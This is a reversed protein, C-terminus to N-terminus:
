KCNYKHDIWHKRQCEKGCYKTKGCRMCSKLKASCSGCYACSELGQGGPKGPVLDDSTTSSHHQSQAPLSGAKSMAKCDSKHKRWHNQQCETNCYQAVGCQKCKKLTDSSSNCFSCKAKVEDIPKSSITAESTTLTKTNVKIAQDSEGAPKSRAAVKCDKSHMPWHKTQCDKSCYQVKKCNCCKKTVPYYKNCYECKTDTSPPAHFAESIDSGIHNIRDMGCQDPDGYLLYIVARTFHHDIKYQQLEEFKNPKCATRCTGNTRNAFYTLTKQLVEIEAEDVFIKRTRVHNLSLLITQISSLDVFYFALDVAPARHQYDFLCKNVVAMGRLDKPPIVFTFNTEEKCQFFFMLTEKVNLLPPMLERNRDCSDQIKRDEKSMQMGSHCMMIQDKRHQPPLSLQHDPLSISIPKEETFEYAQRPSVIKILGQAKSFKISIGDYDIPYKFNLLYSFKGCVLKIADSSVKSTSLKHQAYARLAADSLSMESQMREGDGVHLTLKGFSNDESSSQHLPTTLSFSYQVFNIQKDQLSTTPLLSILMNKVPVMDKGPIMFSLGITVKYDNEVFKMPAFFKLKLTGDKVTGDFCDFIHVDKGSIAEKCLYPADSSSYQHIFAFFRPTSYRIPLPIEAGFTGLYDEISSCNCLPCNGEDVVLHMHLKHLLLQTQLSNLFPKMKHYLASSLPEWFHYDGVDANVSSAFTQLILVATEICLNNLIDTGEGSANLLSFVSVKVSDFMADTINSAELQPLKPLVLSQASVKQFILKKCHQKVKFMNGAQVPIPETMVPSTYGDGEHNICRIGLIVPLLKCDFGFCTTIFEDLTNTFSKYLLSSSFLLGSEKLLLIASLILNPPSLHDILNSTYILDFQSNGGSIEQCFSLAHQTNFTFSFKQNPEKNSLVKYASQVWMCFQQVSNSLFPLSKFNKTPVLMADCLSKQVGASKMAGPSFEITHYYGSFPMSGYHLSYVGPKEYLTLNATTPLAQLDLNLVDEVYCNGTKIYAIVEPERSHFEQNDGNIFTKIHCYSMANLEVDELMGRMKLEKYRSFQMQEVSSVGMKQELWLRWTQSIESLVAPSTFRVLLRLPSEMQGWQDFSDSYKLLVRLCDDLVSKHQWHLEHCYWIAWMACLWRKKEEIKSPLHLCLYLFVINRAQVPASCDNLVFHVGDFRKPAQSILFDFHKWLTYFYSRIDGCGLSLIQPEKVGTCNELFDEAATNGYAYYYRFDGSHWFRAIPFPQARFITDKEEQKTIRSDAKKCLSKHTKWHARQCKEDCYKVGKCNSCKKLCGTSLKGCNDCKEDIVDPEITYPVLDQLLNPKHKLVLSFHDVDCLLLSIVARTFYQQIQKEILWNFRCKSDCVSNCNGNTREAFYGFVQKFVECEIENVEISCIQQPPISDWLPSLVDLLSEELFCFALDIVPIRDEYNFLRNNVLFLGIVNGNPQVVRFFYNENQFFNLISKKVKVLSSVETTNDQGLSQISNLEQMTFQQGFLAFIADRSMLLPFLSLEKDPSITFLPREDIFDQFARPCHILVSEKKRQLKIKIHDYAVPFPYKLQCTSEGLSLELMNSSVRRTEIKDTGLRSVVAPHLDIEMDCSDGDSGHSTIVGFSKLTRNFNAGSSAAQFFKFSSFSTLYSSLPQTPLETINSTVNGFNSILSMVTTVKYKQKVLGLPAYFFLQLFGNHNGTSPSVCDFIHVDEDNKALECLFIADDLGEKHVIAMFKPTLGTKIVMQTSFLGVYNSIPVKLCIPCNDGTVTLHMHLILQTQMNQLYPKIPIQMADSLPKWFQPNFDASVNSMLVQFYKVATEVCLNNMMLPVKPSIILPYVFIQVSSLLARVITEPLQEGQSFVLPITDLKLKEWILLDEHYVFDTRRETLPCLQVTVPSAYNDGEHNICRMGLVIPIYKCDFGFSTTIYQNLTGFHRKFLTSTFLLGNDKLLPVTSLILNPPSLHDMLNSTYILDFKPFLSSQNGNELEYCFNLAHSCDFTFSINRESKLVNHSSQVWLSFQQVSNALLPWLNFYKEPVPLKNALATGLFEIPENKFEVTHFYCRFPLSRYHLTYTGDEREFFTVNVFSPEIIPFHLDLVMEAYVSGKEVYALVESKQVDSHLSKEFPIETNDEVFASANADLQFFDDYKLFNAKRSSHMEQVSAVKIKRHLWMKWVKGVENLTTPSSFKVLPYLSNDKNSWDNSYKCLVRLSDNLLKNHEPYLEHCYWIAWLGSLWKKLNNEEEPLHLCLYLFLVDRALVAASNDNLVFTVGDFRAPGKVDFNKWLSYFCSRIDGCGLVLIAPNNAYSCNQLFDQPPTNGYAYYFRFNGGYWYRSLPYVTNGVEMSHSTNQMFLTYLLFFTTVCRSIAEDGPGGSARKEWSSFFSPRTYM